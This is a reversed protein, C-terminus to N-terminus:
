ADVCTIESVFLEEKEDDTGTISEAIWTVYHKSILQALKALGRGKIAIIKQMTQIIIGNDPSFEIFPSSTYPLFFMRGDRLRLQLSIIFQAHTDVGYFESKPENTNENAAKQPNDETSDKSHIGWKENLADKSM